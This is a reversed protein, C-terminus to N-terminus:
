ASLNYNPLQSLEVVVFDVLFLQLFRLQGFPKFHLEVIPMNLTPGQGFKMKPVAAYKRKAIQFRVFARLLRFAIWGLLALLPSALVVAGLVYSVM